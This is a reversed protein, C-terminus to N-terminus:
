VLALLLALQEPGNRLLPSTHRRCEDVELSDREFYRGELACVNNAHPEPWVSYVDGPFSEAKIKRLAEGYPLLTCYDDLPKAAKIPPGKLLYIWDVEVMGHAAFEVAYKGVQESGYLKAAAILKKSATEADLQSDGQGGLGDGVAVTGSPAQKNDAPNWHVKVWEVLRQFGPGTTRWVGEDLYRDMSNMGALRNEPLSTTSMDIINHREEIKLIVQTEKQAQKLRDSVSEVSPSTIM